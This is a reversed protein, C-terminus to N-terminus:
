FFNKFYCILKWINKFTIKFWVNQFCCVQQQELQANTQQLNEIEQRLKTWEMKYKRAIQRLQLERGKLDLIEKTLKKVEEIRQTLDEGCKAHEKKM